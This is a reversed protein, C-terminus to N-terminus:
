RQKTPAPAPAPAPAAGMKKRADEPPKAGAGAVPPATQQVRAEARPAAVNKLTGVCDIDHGPGTEITAGLALLPNIAGLAVAALARKALAGKDLGFKPAGFTGGIELPSRLSLISQDKPEPKVYIDMAERAFDVTANGTFVTDDSDLVLARSAMVGQNVDFAMAVCRTPVKRDGQLFFKILEGGDLGAVELLINSIEGRGMLLAVNGNATGLLQAVSGGRASLDLQAQLKGVSNSLSKSGPVLRNLELARGDLRTQVAVPNANADLRLRGALRGGALGMDLPDLVLVGDKLLVHTKMRDLPLGKANVVKAADIDVDANMTKLRSVDVAATPLVKRNPDKPAKKGKADAPPAAAVQTGKAPPKDKLGIVPALDEFDLMRSRLQGSLSPVKGSRDFALEGGIDSRGLRGDVRRVRWVEGQKTLQGALAYRPTDPLVVGVLKHLDALNNGQVQFDVNAGDLTALSAIAGNARLRTAGAVLQVEAPFPNQLPASLYLVDGTRGEASFPQDAWRGQAKFRLPMSAAAANPAASGGAQRDMAFEARVDAGQARAVYHATGQDVV